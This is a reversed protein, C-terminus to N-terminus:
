AESPRAPKASRLEFRCIDLHSSGAPLTEKTTVNEFGRDHCPASYCHSSCGDCHRQCPSPFTSSAGRSPGAALSVITSRPRAPLHPRDEIGVNADTRRALARDIMESMAAATADWNTNAVVKRMAVVRSERDDPTSALAAECAAIFGDSEDAIRVFSGYPEAVDRISTSVIPREAAM